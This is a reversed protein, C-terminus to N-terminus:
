PKPYSLSRLPYIPEKAELWSPPAQQVELGLGKKLKALIVDGIPPQPMHTPPKIAQALLALTVNFVFQMLTSLVQGLPAVMRALMCKPLPTQTTCYKPGLM